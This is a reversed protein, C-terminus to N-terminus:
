SGSSGDEIVGVELNGQMFDVMDAYSEINAVYGLGDKVQELKLQVNKGETVSAYIEMIVNDPCGQDRHTGLKMLNVADFADTSTFKADEFAVSIAKLGMDAIKGNGKGM